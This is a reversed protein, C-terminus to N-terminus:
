CIDPLSKVKAKAIDERILKRIYDSMSKCKHKQVQKLIIHRESELFRIKMGYDKRLEDPLARM